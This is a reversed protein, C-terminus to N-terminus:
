KGVIPGVTTDAIPTLPQDFIPRFYQRAASGGEDDAPTFEFQLDFELEDTRLARIRHYLQVPKDSQVPQTSHLTTGDWVLSISSGNMPLDLLAWWAWHNGRKPNVVLKGQRRQLGCAKWVAEGALTIGQWPDDFGWPREDGFYWGAQDLWNQVSLPEVEVPAPTYGAEEAIRELECAESEWRVADGSARQQSALSVAYRLGMGAAAFLTPNMEVQADFRVQILTEACAQVAAYHEALLEPNPHRRLHDMLALLYASISWAMRPGPAELEDKPRIPLLTPLKGQSKEAVRRLHALLNRSLILNTADLSKVLLPVREIARDSPVFGSRLKQVHRLATIRGVQVARNLRPDPTWLRGAKLARDWAEVSADFSRETDRLALFSSWAVQEGVDSLTLLLPVEVMGNVLVYYVLKAKGDSTLEIGTPRGHPNGFVRTSEANHQSYIGRAQGPNRQAVLLGDVIRQSLPEGWDIEVDLRILQDGEAQCDLVWIAARDDASGLPVALRKSIIMGESGLITEQYGPYYRTVLPALEEHQPDSVHLRISRAYITDAWPWVLDHLDTEADVTFSLEQNALRYNLTPDSAKVRAAPADLIQPQDLIPDFPNM